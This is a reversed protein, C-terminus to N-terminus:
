TSRLLRKQLRIDDGFLRFMKFNNMIRSLIRESYQEKLEAMSLNSSLIIPKNNILRQNLCDFFISSIVSNVLETGIDDIILLDCNHVYPTLDPEGEELRNFRTRTMLDFFHISSFYMVSREQDMLEKAICNSLFTKGIGTEGYFLINHPDTDFQEIFKHCNEVIRVMNEKASLNSLQEPDMYNGSYFDYSLTDFNEQDLVAKLGSQRYLDDIIIKHFCSCKLNNIYGTDECDKCDFIPDLYDHPYGADQLLKKKFLDYKELQEKYEDFSVQEGSVLRRGYYLSIKSVFNENKVFAPIKSRIEEKREDLLARNKQQKQDYSRKIEQYKINNIGM